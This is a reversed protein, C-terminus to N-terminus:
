RVLSINGTKKVDFLQQADNVTTGAKLYEAKIFYVFVAPDLLRGKYYGDWCFDPDTSEFVKEGWRDFIMISFNSVCDDWGSLCIVDNIGDNNPTFANPVILNRNSPCPIVVVVKVCASDVCGNNNTVTVCYDTTETNTAVTTDCNVCSLGLAPSWSYSTGGTVYLNSADGIFMTQEPVVWVVPLPNIVATATNTGSATCMGSIGTVDYTVTYSGGATPVSSLLITGTSDDITIGGTVTWVGGPTFGGPLIPSVSSDSICVAPYSFNTVPITLPQIFVTDTTTGAPGCITAAITYTVYYTNATSTAPNIAGTSPNLSLGSAPSSSWTGGPTFGAATTPSTTGAAVCITDPYNFVTTPVVVAGVTVQVTDVSLCAGSLSYSIIFTGPGAIAPDFTGAITDTVGTGGWVGGSSVSTLTYVPDNACIVPPQNITADAANVTIMVTDSANCLATTAYYIMYTGPGAVAPDFTGATSNTIGTGSWTGGLTDVVLNMPPNSICLIPVPTIYPNVGGPPTVQVVVTLTIPSLCGSIPTGTATYTTTVGPNAIVSPGSTSSLGTGPSWTWTFDNVITGNVDIPVPSGCTNVTDPQMNCISPPAGAAGPYTFYLLNNIANTAAADDLIIVFKFVETAGPALNTIKYALAIAEDAFNTSGVTQVFGFGTGNWIDSADRNSFGGYIVRFNAGAAAIGVYSMPQSGPSVSTASVHAIGCGSGPQAVITNQTTFDFGISQNNDPDFNRYYFMEPITASTNNTIAVTTTYFLDNEMLLYDIKFHLNTGVTNDGEWTATYCDFYHQWGTIAGPIEDPPSSWSASNNSGIPGGTTGVEFGWGNEPSGPTFFDGDFTAWLNVQPNAVFGFLAAGGSRSHMGALPPAITTNSGEFGGSGDIGIEVLSGKVYAEGAVIQAKVSGTLVVCLALLLLNRSSMNVKKM